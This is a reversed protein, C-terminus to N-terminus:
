KLTIVNIQPRAFFRVPYYGVNGIGNSVLVKTYGTEVLGTRYKQGYQSPTFPGWLGFLTIQGGHTHGSLVLDVKKSKIKEAYDPNHSLLLVFDSEKVDDITNGIIQRDEWYDGVGGIKIRKGGRYIWESSNDLPKIGTSEMSTRTLAASEWHDHNGMVGYKGIVAKLKGLEEFCPEIYSPSKNVYDGGLLIIDPNLGNIREVLSRVRKRSYVKSHHIDSVFVIKLGKFSAPIDPNVLDMRKTQILYPEVFAYLFFVFGTLILVISIKKLRIRLM